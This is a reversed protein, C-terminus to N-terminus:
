RPPGAHLWNWGYNTEAALGAYDTGRKNFYTTAGDASATFVIHPVSEAILKADPRSGPRSQGPILREPPRASGAFTTVDDVESRM